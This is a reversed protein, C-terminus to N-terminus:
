HHVRLWTRIEVASPDKADLAALAAEAEKAARARTKQDDALAEALRFRTVATLGPPQKTAVDIALAREEFPVAERARGLATLAQGVAVASGAVNPNDKGLKAELIALSRNADDLAGAYNRREMELKAAIELVIGVNVHDAGYAKSELELARKMMPEAEDLKGLEGLQNAVNATTDAVDPADEAKAYIALAKRFLELADTHRHETDALSALNALATAVDPYDPGRAAEVLARGRELDRRAGALDGRSARVQGLNLLSPYLDPSDKGYTKEWTAIAKEYYSQAKELDGSDAYFTGLSNYSTGVNPHDPGLAAIRITLAQDYLRKADELRGQTRYVNGLDNSRNAVEPTGKGFHVEAAALAEELAKAAKDLQGQDKYLTGLQSLTILVAESNPDDRRAIVLSREYRTQAEKLKGRRALLFAIGDDLEILYESPLHTHLVLVDAVNALEQAAELHSMRTLELLRGTLARLLGRTDGSEAAVQM